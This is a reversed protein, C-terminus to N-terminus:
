LIGHHFVSYEQIDSLMGISSRDEKVFHSSKQKPSNWQSCNFFLNYGWGKWVGLFGVFFVSNKVLISAYEQDNNKQCM